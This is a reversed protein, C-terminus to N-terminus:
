SSWHIGPKTYRGGYPLRQMTKFSPTLSTVFFVFVGRGGGGQKEYTNIRFPSLTTQKSASKCTNIRFTTLATIIPRMEYSNITFPKTSRHPLPVSPYLSRAALYHTPSTATFLAPLNHPALPPPTPCCSFRHGRPQARSLCARRPEGRLEPYVPYVVASGVRSHARVILPCPLM